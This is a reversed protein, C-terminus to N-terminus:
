REPVAFGKSLIGRLRAREVPTLRRDHYVAAGYIRAFENVRPNGTLQAAELVGMSGYAATVGCDRALRRFFRRVLREESRLVLRHRFKAVCICGVVAAAIAVLRLLRRLPEGRPLSQLQQSMSRAADMQREFDYTVVSRNWAHDLSDATMRLRALFGIQRRGAWVEGANVAFSSPDIRLWGRGEVFAEVWVHAMEERVLYYGGIDNYEGGFYGGVLRSPVGAARLVLAYASAFFECHGQKSEFLFQELAHDGTPLSSMSYRYQGNRIHQELLELRREASTGRVRIAAALQRIRPSLPEPLQLYFRRDIASAFIIGSSVSRVSYALRKGSIGPQEMVDDPSRKLRPLSLDFPADLAPLIRSTRPELYVVQALPSGIYRSDDRPVAVNRVWRQGELRNFVTGRWYLQQPPLRPMEVRFALERSAGVTASSGPEVKDSFGSPRDVQGPLLNWLPLQTRPLVPFFLLVLPVSALPMILGVGVVARLESRGLTLPPGDASQFTLLVLSIAVLFLMLGLYILFMPSLDFLSSAALCFLSLANLQLYHRPSKEGLLRVALMIGLASVVPQVANLRNFQLAYYLFVPLVAVTVFRPNLRWPGRMDQWICAAFGAATVIRVPVPLWTFLPVLGCLVIAGSLLATLSKISVM